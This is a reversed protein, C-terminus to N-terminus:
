VCPTRSSMLVGNNDVCVYSTGNGALRQFRVSNTAYLPASILAQSGSVQFYNEIRTNGYNGIYVGREFRGIQSFTAEDVFNAPSGISVTKTSANGNPSGEIRLAGSFFNVGQSSTLSKTECVEDAKCDHASVMKTVVAPGLFIGNGTVVGATILSSLVAVVLAIIIMALVHKSNM